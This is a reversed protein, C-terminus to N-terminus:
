SIHRRGLGLARRGPGIQHELAASAVESDQVILDKRNLLTSVATLIQAATRDYVADLVWVTEVLVRRAVWAGRSTFVEAARVQELDDRVVLRVLVNRDVARM